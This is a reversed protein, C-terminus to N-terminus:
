YFNNDSYFNELDNVGSCRSLIIIGSGVDQSIGGMDGKREGEKAKPLPKEPPHRHIAFEPDSRYLQLFTTFHPSFPHFLHQETFVRMGQIVLSTQENRGFQPFDQALM